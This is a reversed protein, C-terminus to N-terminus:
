SNRHQKIIKEAHEYDGRPGRSGLSAEIFNGKSNVFVKYPIGPVNLKEHLKNEDFLYIFDYNHERAFKQADERSDTFGATVALVVFDDPYDKMLEQMTHFSELCPKCWTEWFDILVVKGEFDTISVENGELDVFSAQEVAEEQTLTTNSGSSKKRSSCSIMFGISLLFLIAHMLNFKKM